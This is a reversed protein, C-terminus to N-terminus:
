RAGAERADGHQEGITLLFACEDVAVVTHPLRKAVVVVLVAGDLCHVSIDSHAHHEEIRGRATM